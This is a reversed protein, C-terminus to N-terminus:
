QGTRGPASARDNRPNFAKPSVQIAETKRQAALIPAIKSRALRFRSDSIKLGLCSRDPGLDFRPDSALDPRGILRALAEFRQQNMAINLLGDGTVFLGSPPQRRVRAILWNSVQWGMTVLPSNARRPPKM